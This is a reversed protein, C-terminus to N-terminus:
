VIILIIQNLEMLQHKRLRQDFCAWLEVIIMGRHNLSLHERSNELSVIYQCVSNSSTTLCSCVQKRQQLFVQLQPLGLVCFHSLQSVQNELWSSLKCRLAVRHKLTQCLIHWRWEVGTHYKTAWAQFILLSLDARLTRVDYHSRSPPENVM